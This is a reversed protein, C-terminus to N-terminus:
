VLESEKQEVPNMQYYYKWTKNGQDDITGFRKCTPCILPYAINPDDSLDIVKAQKYWNM